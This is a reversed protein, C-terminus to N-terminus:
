IPASKVLICFHLIEQTQAGLNRGAVGTQQIRVTPRPTHAENLISDDLGLPTGPM